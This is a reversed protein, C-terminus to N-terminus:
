FTYHVLIKVFYVCLPGFFLGKEISTLKHCVCHEMVVLVGIAKLLM